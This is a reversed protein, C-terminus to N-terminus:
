QVKETITSLGPLSVPFTGLAQRNAFKGNPSKFTSETSNKNYVQAKAYTLSKKLM